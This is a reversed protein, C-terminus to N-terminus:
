KRQKSKRPKSKADGSDSPREDQVAKAEEVEEILSIGRKNKGSLLANIRGDGVEKGQRPYEDGKRYSHGGDLLDFFPVIVRYM